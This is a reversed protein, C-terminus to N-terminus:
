KQSLYWDKYKDPLFYEIWKPIDSYPYKMKHIPITILYVGNEDSLDLKIKDNMRQKNFQERTQKSWNPHEYHTIGNLEIALKLDKNYLDYELGRLFSPRANTEFKVGFFNEVFWRGVREPRNEKFPNTVKADLIESPIPPVDSFMEYEDIIKVMVDFVNEQVTETVYITEVDSSLDESTVPNGEEIRQIEEDNFNEENYCKRGKEQIDKKDKELSDYIDPESDEFEIDGEEIDNEYSNYSNNGTDKGKCNLFLLFIIIFLLILIIIIFWFYASNILDKLDM